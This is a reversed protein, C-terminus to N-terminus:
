DVWWEIRGFHGYDAVYLGAQLPTPKGMAGTILVQGPEITWGNAVTRNVLWLLAQWQDDLVDTASGQTVIEGDRYLTVAVANPNTLSSARAAGILFHKAGANTAIIDLARYKDTGTHALDPLEIAPLIEALNAQLAKVDPLSHNIRRAFRYGIEVEVVGQRYDRLQTRYGDEEAVLASDPLLVAAAPEVAGYFRQSELNTLAAKFGAPARGQLRQELALHQIRYAGDTNLAKGYLPILLPVPENHAWAQSVRFGGDEVPDISSCATILLAASLGIRQWVMANEGYLQSNNQANPYVLAAARAQSGSRILAM